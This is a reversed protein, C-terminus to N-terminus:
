SSVNKRMQSCPLKAAHQNATLWDTKEEAHTAHSLYHSSASGENIDEFRTLMEEFGVLNIVCKLNGYFNSEPEGGVGEGFCFEM